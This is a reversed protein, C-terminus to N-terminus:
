SNSVQYPAEHGIITALANDMADVAMHDGFNAMIAKRVWQTIRKDTMGEEKMATGLEFLLAISDERMMSMVELADQFLLETLNEIDVSIKQKKALDKMGDQLCKLAHSYACINALYAGAVTRAMPTMKVRLVIEAVRGKRYTM